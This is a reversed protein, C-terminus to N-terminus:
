LSALAAEIVLREDGVFHKERDDMTQVAAAYAATLSALHAALEAQLEPVKRRDSTRQTYVEEAQQELIFPGLQGVKPDSHNYKYQVEKAQEM